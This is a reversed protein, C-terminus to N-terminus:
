GPYLWFVNAEQGNGIKQLVVCTLYAIVGLEKAECVRSSLGPLSTILDSQAEKSLNETLIEERVEAGITAMALVLAGACLCLM